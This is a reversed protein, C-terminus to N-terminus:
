AGCVQFSALLLPPDGNCVNENKNAHKVNPSAFHLRRLAEVLVLCVMAGIVRGPRRNERLAGGPGSCNHTADCLAVTEHETRGGCQGCVRAGWCRGSVNSVRTAAVSLQLSREGAAWVCLVRRQHVLVYGDFTASVNCSHQADQGGRVTHKSARANPGATM